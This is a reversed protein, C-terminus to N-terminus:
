NKHKMNVTNSQVSAGLVFWSSKVFRYKIDNNCAAEALDISYKLQPDLKKTPRPKTDQSVTEYYTISYVEGEGPESAFLKSLTQGNPATATTEQIAPYPPRPNIEVIYMEETTDATDASAKHSPKASAWANNCFIICLLLFIKKM